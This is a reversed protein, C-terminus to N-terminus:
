GLRPRITRDVDGAGTFASPVAGNGSRQTLDHLLLGRLSPDHESLPYTNVYLEGAAAM